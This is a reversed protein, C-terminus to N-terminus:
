EHSVLTGFDVTILKFFLWIKNQFSPFDLLVGSLEEWCSESSPDRVLIENVTTFM